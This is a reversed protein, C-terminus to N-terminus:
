LCFIMAYDMYALNHEIKQITKLQNKTYFLLHERQVAFYYIKKILVGFRACGNGTECPKGQKKVLQSIRLVVQFKDVNCASVSFARCCSHQCIRKRQRAVFRTLEGGGKNVAVVVPYLYVALLYGVILKCTENVDYLGYKFIVICAVGLKLYCVGNCEHVISLLLAIHNHKFRSHATKVVTCVNDPVIDARHYHGNGKVVSGNQAVSNLLYGILFCADDLVAAGNHKIGFIRRLSNHCHSILRLYM